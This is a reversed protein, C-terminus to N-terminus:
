KTVPKLVNCPPKGNRILLIDFRKGADHEEKFYGEFKDNYAVMWMKMRKHWTVGRYKSTKNKRLAKM